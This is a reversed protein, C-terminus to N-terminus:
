DNSLNKIDMWTMLDHLAEKTPINGRYVVDYKQPADMECHNNNKWWLLDSGNPLEFSACFENEKYMVWGEAEIIKKTLEESLGDADFVMNSKCEKSLSKFEESDFSVNSKADHISSNEGIKKNEM